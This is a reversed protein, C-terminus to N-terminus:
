PHMDGKVKEEIGKVPISMMYYYMVVIVSIIVVVRITIVVTMPYRSTILALTPLVIRMMAFPNTIATFIDSFFVATYSWYFGMRSDSFNVMLDILIAM